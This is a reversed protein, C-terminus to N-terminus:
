DELITDFSETAFGAYVYQTLREAIQRAEGLHAYGEAVRAFGDRPMPSDQEEALPELLV